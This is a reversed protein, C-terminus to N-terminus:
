NDCSAHTAHLTPVNWGCFLDADHKGHMGPVKWLRSPRIAHTAHGFFEM